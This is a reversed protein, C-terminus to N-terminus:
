TEIFGELFQTEYHMKYVALRAETFERQGFHAFGEDRHFKALEVMLQELSSVGAQYATIAQTYRGKLEAVDGELRKAQAKLFPTRWYVSQLSKQVDDYAGMLKSLEARLLALIEKDERSLRKPSINQWLTLAASAQGQNIEQEKYAYWIRIALPCEDAKILHYAAKTYEGHQVRILGAELHLAEREEFSLLHDYIAEQFAPLLQVGGQADRSLLHWDDLQQFAAQTESQLWTHAPAAQRFVALIELLYMETENLHHWIRRLMFEISPSEALQALANATTDGVRHASQQLAIFLQLLRPNGHTHQWLSRQEEKSLTIDARTLLTEIDTTELGSLAVMHDADLLSKQGMFIIPALGRLSELFPVIKTHAGVADPRLLDVEDFCLILPYDKLKNFDHRLLNLALDEQVNDPNSLLQFWLSNAGQQHLFYALAFLLRTIQDNLGPRFTLWFIRDPAISKALSIGLTTKGIGGSGSLAITQNQSLASLCTQTVADRGMIVSSPQPHELRLAPTLEQILVQGLREIAGKQQRFFTSRTMNLYNQKIIQETSLPRARLFRCELLTVWEENEDELTQVSQRILHQLVQGRDQPSAPNIGDHKLLHTGLFYVTGLPSQDGLWHQDHFRKLADTVIKNFGDPLQELADLGNELM